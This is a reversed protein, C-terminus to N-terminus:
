KILEDLPGNQTTEIYFYSLSDIKNDRIAILTNKLSVLSDYLASENLIAQDIDVWMNEGFETDRLVGSYKKTYYVPFYVDSFLENDAYLFRREIGILKFDSADAILGTEVELKRQAAAAMPEGKRVIGGPIGVKGYSPHSKRLQNLIQIRSKGKKDLVIRSVVTLVNVKFLSLAVKPDFIKTAEAINSDGVLKIGQVSLSYGKRTKGIYGKKVLYQLHYNFLDNPVKPSVDPMLDSYRVDKANKLKHLIHNQIPSFLTTSPTKKVKKSVKKGPLDAKM